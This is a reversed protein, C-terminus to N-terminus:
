RLYKRDFWFPGFPLLAAIGAKFVLSFKWQHEIWVWALVIMYLVFLIGHAWGTYKVAEPIGAWYKLPMAIFLLLLYSVGEAYSIKKFVNIMDVFFYFPPTFV